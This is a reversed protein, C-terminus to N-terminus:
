DPWKSNHILKICCRPKQRWDDIGGKRLGHCRVWKMFPQPWWCYNQTASSKIEPVLWLDAERGNLECVTACLMSLDLGGAAVARSHRPEIIRLGIGAYHSVLVELDEAEPVENGAPIVTTRKGIPVYGKALSTWRGGNAVTTPIETEKGDHIGRRRRLEKLSGTQYTTEAEIFLRACALWQMTELMQEPDGSPGTTNNM